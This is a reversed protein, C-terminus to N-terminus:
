DHTTPVRDELDFIREGDFILEHCRACKNRDKTDTLVFRPDWSTRQEAM